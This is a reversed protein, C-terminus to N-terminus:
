AASMHRFKLTALNRDLYQMELLVTQDASGFLGMTNPIKEGKLEVEHKTDIPEAQECQSAKGINFAWGTGALPHGCKNCNCVFANSRRFVSLAQGQGHMEAPFRGRNLANILGFCVPSASLVHSRSNTNFM